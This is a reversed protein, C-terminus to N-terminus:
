SSHSLKSCDKRSIRKKVTSIPSKDKQAEYTTIANYEQRKQNKDSM